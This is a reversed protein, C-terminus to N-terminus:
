SGHGQEDNPAQVELQPPGAGSVAPEDSEQAVQKAEAATPPKASDPREGRLAAWIAELPKYDGATLDHPEFGGSAYLSEAASWGLQRYAECQDEDYIQDLTSDNPFAKERAFHKILEPPESGTVALKFYILKSPPGEKYEISGLVFSRESFRADLANKKKLEAETSRMLSPTLPALDLPGNREANRFKIGRSMHARQMIKTLDEFEYNPDYTADCAIILECRRELLPWLGLNDNHGGDSVFVYPRTEARHAVWPALRFLAAGGFRDPLCLSLGALAAAALSAYLPWCERTGLGAFFCVASLILTVVITTIGLFPMWKGLASQPLRLWQGMRLNVLAMFTAIPMSDIQSPSVASGSIALVNGLDDAERDLENTDSFGVQPCSSGSKLPTFQFTWTRCKNVRKGVLNLSACIIPFPAGSEWPKLTSLRYRTENTLFGARLRECYFRHLSTANLDIATGAILFALLAVVWWWFRLRQDSDVLITGGPVRAERAAYPTGVEDIPWDAYAYNRTNAYLKNAKAPVDARRERLSQIAVLALNRHEATPDKFAAPICTWKANKWNPIGKPIEFSLATAFEKCRDTEVTLTQCEAGLEALYDDIVRHEDAAAPKGDQGIGIFHPSEIAVIANAVQPDFYKSLQLPQKIPAAGSFNESAFFHIGLLPIGFLGAFVVWTFVYVQWPHRPQAGSLMFRQPVLLPVAASAFVIITTITQLVETPGLRQTVFRHDAGVLTHGAFGNPLLKALPGLSTDGNAMLIVSGFVVTTWFLGQMIRYAVRLKHRGELSAGNRFHSLRVFVALLLTLVFLGVAPLFARVIDSEFHWGPPSHGRIWNVLGQSDFLRWLWAVFACSFVLLSGFVLGNGLMGWLYYIALTLPRRLYKGGQVLAMWPPIHKGDPSFGLPLNQSEDDSQHRLLFNADSKRRTEVHSILQVGIYSGGSVTALYDVYRLLGDRYLSQLIGLNFMASRIGGGSLALGVFHREDNNSDGEGPRNITVRGNGNGTEAFTATWQKHRRTQIKKHEAEQVTSYKDYELLSEDVEPPQIRHRSLSWVMDTLEADSFVISRSLKARLELVLIAVLLFHL